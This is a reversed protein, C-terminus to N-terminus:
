AAHRAAKKTEFILVRWLGLVFADTEADLVPELDAVLSEPSARAGLKDVVFRVLAPESEGLLTTLKKSIWGRAVDDISAADYVSWDLPHAFVDARSTPISAVLAAVDIKSSPRHRRHADADANADADFVNPRDAAALAASLGGRAKTTTTTSSTPTSKKSALGFSTPPPPPVDVLTATPEAFGRVTTTTTPKAATATSKATEEREKEKEAEEAVRDREDREKESERYRRRKSRERESKKWLPTWYEDDDSADSGDEGEGVARDRRAAERRAKANEEEAEVRRSRERALSRVLEDLQKEKERFAREARESAEYERRGRVFRPAADERSASRRRRGPSSASGASVGTTRTAATTTTAPSEGAESTTAESKGRRTADRDDDDDDGGGGREREEGAAAEGADDIEGEESASQGTLARRFVKGMGRRARAAATADAAAEAETLTKERTEAAARTAANPNCVAREGVGVALGDLARACTVAGAVDRFTAFGFRKPAETRPDRARTWSEVDGCLRLAELVVDDSDLDVPLKGVYVRRDSMVVVVRHTHVDRAATVRSAAVRTPTHPAVFSQIM